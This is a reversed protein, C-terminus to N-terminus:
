ERKDAGSMIKGYTKTHLGCVCLFVIFAYIKAQKVPTHEFKKIFAPILTVYDERELDSKSVETFYCM